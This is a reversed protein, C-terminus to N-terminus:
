VLAPQEAETAQAPEALAAAQAMMPDHVPAESPVWHVQIGSAEFAAREVIYRPRREDLEIRLNAKEWCHRAVACYRCNWPLEAETLTGSSGCTECAVSKEGACPGCPKKLKATVGTGKCTKCILRGAGHCKGCVFDPGVERYPEQDPSYLLVRLARERIEALIAADHPM